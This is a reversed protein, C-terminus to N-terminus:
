GVALENHAFLTSIPLLLSVLTSPMLLQQTSLAPSQVGSRKAEWFAHAQPRSDTPRATVTWSARTQFHTLLVHLCHLIVDFLFSFLSPVLKERGHGSPPCCLHSTVGSLLVSGHPQPSHSVSSAWYLSCNFALARLIQTLNSM